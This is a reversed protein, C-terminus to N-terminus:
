KAKKRTTRSTTRSTITSHSTTSPEPAGPLLPLPMKLRKRWARSESRTTSKDREAERESRYHTLLILHHVAARLEQLNRTWRHSILKDRIAPPLTRFRLKSREEIFWRDMLVPIDEKRDRLPAITIRTADDAAAGPVSADVKGPSTTYIILRVRAHPALVCSIFTQDFRGRAPLWLLLTGDRADRISQLDATEPARTAAVEIFRNRRRTSAWHMAGALREQPSGAEGILVIHRDADAAAAILCDDVETDRTEGMIEAVSRRALRMEENLAYYTTDGIRFQDGPQIHCERVEHHGFILPNKRDASINEVRLWNGPVRELRVHEAALYQHDARLAGSRGLTAVIQGALLPLEITTGYIRLATILDTGAFYSTRKDAPYTETRFVPAM